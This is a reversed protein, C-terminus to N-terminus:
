DSSEINVVIPSLINSKMVENLLSGVEDTNMDEISSSALNEITDKKDVINVLVETENAYFENIDEQNADESPWAISNFEEQSLFGSMDIAYKLMEVKKTEFLKMNGISDFVIELNSSRMGGFHENNALERLYESLDYNIYDKVKKGYAYVIKETNTIICEIKHQKLYEEFNVQVDRYDAIDLKRVFVSIFQRADKKLLTHM